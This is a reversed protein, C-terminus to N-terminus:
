YGTLNLIANMVIMYKKNDSLKHNNYKLDLPKGNILSEIVDKLKDINKGQRMIKKYSKKFLSTLLVKNKFGNLDNVPM